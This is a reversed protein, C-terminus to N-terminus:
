PLLDRVPIRTVEVGDLVLPVTDDPKYTRSQRYGAEDAPGTPDTYVEIAKEEINLIWYVPYGARAYIVKKTGRDRALSSDSVEIVVAIDDASPDRNLYDLNRGRVVAGDPEPRSTDTRASAQGRCDWGEPLRRALYAVCNSAIANPPPNIPMNQVVWGDLLEVGDHAYLIGVEILKMYEDVTFRRVDAITLDPEPPASSPPAAPPPVPLPPAVQPMAPAAAASM